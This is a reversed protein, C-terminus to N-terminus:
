ENFDLLRAKDVGPDVIWQILLFNSKLQKVFELRSRLKALKGQADPVMNSFQEQSNLSRIKEDLEQELVIVEGITRM